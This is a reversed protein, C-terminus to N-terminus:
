KGVQSPLENVKMQHGAMLKRTLEEKQEDSLHKVSEPDGNYGFNESNSEKKFEAGHIAALFERQENERKLTQEYLVSM